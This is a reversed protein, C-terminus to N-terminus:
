VNPNEKDWQLDDSIEEIYKDVSLNFINRLKDRYEVNSIDMNLDPYKYRLEEIKNNFAKEIIMERNAAITQVTAHLAEPSKIDRLYSYIEGEIDSRIDDPWIKLMAEIYIPQNDIDAIKILTDLNKYGIFSKKDEMNNEKKGLEKEMKVLGFELDTYYKEHEYDHDKTIGLEAEDMEERTPKRDVLKKYIETITPDHEKEIEIGTDVEKEYDFIEAQKLLQDINGKHKFYQIQKLHKEADEKSSHSSIIKDTEHSKIVWPKESGDNGKHGPMHVIYSVKIRM